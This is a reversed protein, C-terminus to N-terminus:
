SNDEDESFEAARKLVKKVKPGDFWAQAHALTAEQRLIDTDAQKVVLHSLVKSFSNDILALARLVIVLRFDKATTSSGTVNSVQAVLFSLRAEVIDGVSFSAPSTRIYNYLVDSVFFQTYTTFKAVM